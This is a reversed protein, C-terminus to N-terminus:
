KLVTEEQLEHLSLIKRSCTDDNYHQRYAIQCLTNTTAADNNGLNMLIIYCYVYEGNELIIIKTCYAASYKLIYNNHYSTM